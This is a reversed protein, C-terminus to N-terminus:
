RVTGFDVTQGSTTDTLTVGSYSVNTPGVLDQGPPCTFDGPGPPQLTLSGVISGNKVQFDGTSSSFSSVTEKNGAKPHNGGNNFCQYTATGTGSLTLTEISGNSLGSEKFNVTLVGSQDVSANTASKIFHPSGTLPSAALAPVAALALAMLAVVAIIGIKRMVLDKEKLRDADV